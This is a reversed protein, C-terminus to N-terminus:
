FPHNFTTRVIDTGIHVSLLAALANNYTRVVPRATPARLPNEQEVALVLDGAQMQEIPKASGDALLVLTGAAFCYLHADDIGQGSYTQLTSASFWDSGSVLSAM